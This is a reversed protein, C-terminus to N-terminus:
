LHQVFHYGCSLDRGAGHLTVFMPLRSLQTISSVIAMDGNVLRPM